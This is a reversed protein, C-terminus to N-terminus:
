QNNQQSQLKNYQNKIKRDIKIQTSKIITQKKNNIKKQNKETQSPENPRDIKTEM